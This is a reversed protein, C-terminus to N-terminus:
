IFFYRTKVFLIYLTKSKAIYTDESRTNQENRYRLVLDKISNYIKGGNLLKCERLECIQTM